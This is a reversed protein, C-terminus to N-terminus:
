KNIWFRRLAVVDCIAEPITGAINNGKLDIWDLYEM